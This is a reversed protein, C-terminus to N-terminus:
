SALSRCSVGGPSPVVELMNSTVHLFSGPIGERNTVKLRLTVMCYYCGEDCDCDQSDTRDLATSESKYVTSRQHCKQQSFARSRIPTGVDRGTYTHHEAYLPGPRDSIILGQQLMTGRAAGRQMSESMANSLLFPRVLRQCM